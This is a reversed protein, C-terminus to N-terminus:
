ENIVELKRNYFITKAASSNEYPSICGRGHVELDEYHSIAIIMSYNYGYTNNNRGEFRDSRYNLKLFNYVAGLTPMDMDMLKSICTEDTFLKM